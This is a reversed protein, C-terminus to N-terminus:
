STAGECGHSLLSWCADCGIESLRRSRARCAGPEQPLRRLPWQGSPCISRDGRARFLERGAPCGAARSRRRDLWCGCECRSSRCRRVRRSTETKGREGGGDLVLDVGLVLAVLAGGLRDALEFVAGLNVNVQFDVRALGEPRYREVCSKPAWGPEIYTLFTTEPPCRSRMANREYLWECRRQRGRM